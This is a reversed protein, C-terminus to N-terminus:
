NITTDLLIQIIRGTITDGGVGGGSCNDLAKPCKLTYTSDVTITPLPNVISVPPITDKVRVIQSQYSKNKGDDYYWSIIFTGQQNYFLPSVTKGKIVRKFFRDYATPTDTVTISCQAKITDLPIKQPIPASTDKIFVIQLVTATNGNLDDFGWTISYKGLKSLLTDTFAFLNSVSVILTLMFLAIVKSRM